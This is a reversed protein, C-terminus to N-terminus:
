DHKIRLMPPLLKDIEEDTCSCSGSHLKESAANYAADSTRPAIEYVKELRDALQEIRKRIDSLNCQESMLEAILTQYAERIRWLKTAVAQHQASKDAYAHNKFTLDIILVLSSLIATAYRAAVGSFLSVIGSGAAFGAVLIKTWMLWKHYDYYISAQCEQTKHSWAVKGFCERVQALLIDKSTEEAM